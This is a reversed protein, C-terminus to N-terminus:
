REPLYLVVVTARRRLGEVWEQLFAERGQELM